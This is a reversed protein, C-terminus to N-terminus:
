MEQAIQCADVTSYIEDRIRTLILHIAEKEEEFHAKNEPTMNMLTEVTTHEPIALSDDTAEVAQVLVITPKYPGIVRRALRLLDYGMEVEYDVQLRAENFMQQLTYNTLPYMKEALLFLQIMDLTVCYVRYSDFLKWNKVRALGQPGKQYKWVNFEITHKFMVDDEDDPVIELNKKLEEAEEEEELKQKKANDKTYEEEFLPRIHEYRMGKFFDMKFRAMNKLYIMMNNKAQALSMPKRKLAQYKRLADSQRRQVMKNKQNEKDLHAIHDTMREVLSLVLLDNPASPNTDAKASSLDDCNSDYANLEKTKFALNQPVAQQAVLAESIGPDALFALQEEDLIQGAEQAEALM